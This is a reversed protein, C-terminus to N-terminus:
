ESFLAPVPDCNGSPSQPKIKSFALIVLGLVVLALVFFIWYHGGLVDAWSEAEPWIRSVALALTNNTFHMLMTLWLSGTKYYVYGFLCGLIFAPVAQWPNAHILAFFLASILIAWVPKMRGSNLLGRLVMGRCLWEECLPAMISVLLFNVWLTGTTMGQLLQKLYEPMPPMVGALADIAFAAAITGVVVLAKCAWEKQPAFNSSDLAFGGTEISRNRSQAAVYFMAPLFMLPYSLLMGYEMAAHQGAVASFILTVLSGLLGGLVLFGLLAFMGGVGPVYWAHASFVNFNGRRKM